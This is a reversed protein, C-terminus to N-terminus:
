KVYLCAMKFLFACIFSRRVCALCIFNLRKEVEFRRIRKQLRVRIDTVKIQNGVRCIEFYLGQEHSM